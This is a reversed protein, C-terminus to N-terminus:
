RLITFIVQDGTIEGQFTTKSDPPVMRPPPPLSDPEGRGQFFLSNDGEVDMGNYVYFESFLLIHNCPLNM